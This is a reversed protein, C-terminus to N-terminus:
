LIHDSPHNSNHCSGDTGPSAFLQAAIQEGLQNADGPAQINAPPTNV